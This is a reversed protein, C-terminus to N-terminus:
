AARSPQFSRLMAQEHPLSAISLAISSLSNSLPHLLLEADDRVTDIQGFLAEPKGDPWAEFSWAHAIRGLGDGADSSSMM